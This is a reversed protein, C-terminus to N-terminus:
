RNESWCCALFRSLSRSRVDVVVSIVTVNGFVASGISLGREFLHLTSTSSCFLKLIVAVCFSCPAPTVAFACGQVLIYDKYLIYALTMGKVVYLKRDRLASGSPTPM